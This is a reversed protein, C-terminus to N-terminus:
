GGTEPALPPRARGWFSRGRKVSGGSEASVLSSELRGLEKQEVFCSNRLSDGDLNGLELLIRQNISQVRSITVPEADPHTITLTARQQRDRVFTRQITLNRIGVSITLEVSAMQQGHQIVEEQRVRTEEGVLAAGYLAVYIAEFLTSKGAENHGEILISGREPFTLDVDHLGKFQQVKLRKLTIM